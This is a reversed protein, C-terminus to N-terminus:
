AGPTAKDRGQVWDTAVREDDTAIAWWDILRRIRVRTIPEEAWAHIEDQYCAVTRADVRDSETLITYDTGGAPTMVVCANLGGTPPRRVGWGGREYAARECRECGDELEEVTPLIEAPFEADSTQVFPIARLTNSENTNSM